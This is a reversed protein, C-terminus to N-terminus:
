LKRLSNWNNLKPTRVYKNKITFTSNQLKLLYLKYEKLFPQIITM